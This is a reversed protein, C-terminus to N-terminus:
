LHCFQCDFYLDNPVLNQLTEGIESLHLTQVANCEYSEGSAQTLQLASCCAGKHKHSDGREINTLTEWKSLNSQLELPETQVTPNTLLGRRFSYM